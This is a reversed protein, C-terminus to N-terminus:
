IETQCYQNHNENIKKILTYKTNNNLIKLILRASTRPRLATLSLRWPAHGSIKVHKKGKKHTIFISLLERKIKCVM